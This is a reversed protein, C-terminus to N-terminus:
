RLLKWVGSVDVKWHATAAEQNGNRSAQRLIRHFGHNDGGLRRTTRGHRPVKRSLYRHRTDITATRDYRPKLKGTRRVSALRRFSDLLTTTPTRSDGVLLYNRRLLEQHYRFSEEDFRCGSSNNGRKNAIDPVPSDILSVM